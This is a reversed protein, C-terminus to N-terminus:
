KKEEEEIKKIEKEEEKITKQNQLALLEAERAEQHYAHISHKVLTQFKNQFFLGTLGVFLPAGM